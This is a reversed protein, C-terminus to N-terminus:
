EGVGLKKLCKDCFHFEWVTTTVADNKYEKRLITAVTENTSWYEDGCLNCRYGTHYESM